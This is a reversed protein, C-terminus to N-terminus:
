EEDLVDEPCFYTYPAQDQLIALHETLMGMTEYPQVDHTTFHWPEVDGDANLYVVTGVAKIPTWGEPPGDFSLGNIENM